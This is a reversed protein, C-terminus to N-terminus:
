IHCFSFYLFCELIQILKDCYKHLEVYKKFFESIIITSYARNLVAIEFLRKIHLLVISEKSKWM